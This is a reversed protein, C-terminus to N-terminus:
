GADVTFAVYGISEKGHKGDSLPQTPQGSQQCVVENMRIKFGTNTVNAIRLGPTHAGIFTQVMPIVIVKSGAPFPKSFRVQTFTRTNRSMLESSSASGLNIVGTQFTPSNADRSLRPEQIRKIVVTGCNSCFKDDLDLKERCTTCYSLNEVTYCWDNERRIVTVIGIQIPALDSALECEYPLYIAVRTKLILIVILMLLILLFVNPIV